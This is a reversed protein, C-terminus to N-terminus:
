LDRLAHIRNILYEAIQSRIQMGDEETVYAFAHKTEQIPFWDRPVSGPLPYHVQHLNRQGLLSGCKTMTIEGDEWVQYVHCNEREALAPNHLLAIAGKVIEETAM